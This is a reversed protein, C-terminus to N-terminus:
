LQSALKPSKQLFQQQLKKRQEQLQRSKQELQSIKFESQILQEQLNQYQTVLKDNSCENNEKERQNHLPTSFGTDTQIRNSQNYQNNALSQRQQSLVNPTLTRSQVVQHKTPTQNLRQNYPIKQPTLAANQPQQSYKIVNPSVSVKNTILRIPSVNSIQQDINQSVRRTSQLQSSKDLPIIISQQNQVPMRIAPQIIRQICIRIM